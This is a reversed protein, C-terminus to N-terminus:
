KRATIRKYTPLLQFLYISETQTISTFGQIIINLIHLQYLVKIKKAIIIVPLVRTVCDYNMPFTM